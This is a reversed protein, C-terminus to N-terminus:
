SGSVAAKPRTRIVVNAEICDKRLTARNIELVLDGHEVFAKPYSEADLMRIHDYISKLSGSQPLLSQSPTRRKFTVPDGTQPVPEPTRDIIEVIMESIVRSIRLFIEEGGGLLSVAKQMYVPGADLEKVMRLASVVTEEHGHAIMNQIPSGGRGYPVPTSHFCVCEYAAIINDPVIWNWHPFFIYRPDIEKLREMSLDEKGSMYVFSHENFSASKDVANFWPKSCAIVSNTM